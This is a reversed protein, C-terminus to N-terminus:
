NLTVQIRDAEQFVEELKSALTCRGADALWLQQGFVAEHADCLIHRLDENSHTNHFWDQM